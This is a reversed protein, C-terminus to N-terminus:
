LMANTVHCSMHRLSSGWDEGVRELSALRVNPVAQVVYMPGRDIAYTPQSM